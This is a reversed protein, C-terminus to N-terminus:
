LYITDSGSATARGHRYGSQANRSAGAPPIKNVFAGHIITRTPDAMSVIWIRKASVDTKTDPDDHVVGSSVGM